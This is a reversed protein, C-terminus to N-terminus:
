AFVRQPNNPATGAVLGTADRAGLFGPIAVMAANLAPLGINLHYGPELSKDPLLVPIPGDVLATDWGWTGALGASWYSPLAAKATAEDAFKFYHTTQSMNRAGSAGWGVCHESYTNWTM